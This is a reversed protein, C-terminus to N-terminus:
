WTITARQPSGIGKLGQWVDELLHAISGGIKSSKSAKKKPHAKKSKGSRKSFDAMSSNLPDEDRRYKYQLNTINASQWGDRPDFGRSQLAHPKTYFSRSIAEVSGTTAVVFSPLVLVPIALFLGFLIVLKSTFTSM